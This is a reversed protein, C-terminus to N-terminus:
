YSLVWTTGRIPFQGILQADVQLSTVDLMLQTGVSAAINNSIMAKITFLRMQKPAFVADTPAFAQGNKFPTQGEVGGVLSRSGGKDDVTSLGIITATPANGNQKLWFGKLTTTADGTNTIQLYSVPVSAGARAVGGALLPVSAVAFTTVPQSTNASSGKERIDLKGTKEGVSIEYIGESIKKAVEVKWKGNKVKIVKSTYVTQGDAEKKLVVKVTKDTVGTGSLTIKAGESKEYYKTIKCSADSVTTGCEMKNKPTAASVTVPAVIGFLLVLIVILYLYSKM